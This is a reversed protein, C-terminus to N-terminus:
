LTCLACLGACLENLQTPLHSRPYNGRCSRFHPRFLLFFFPRLPYNSLLYLADEIAPVSSWSLGLSYSNIVAALTATPAGQEALRRVTDLQGDSLRADYLSPGPSRPTAFTIVPPEARPVETLESMCTPPGAPPYAMVRSDSHLPHNWIDLTLPIYWQLRVYIKSLLRRQLSRTRAMVHLPLNSFKYEQREVEVRQSRTKSRHRCAGCDHHRRSLSSFQSNWATLYVFFCLVAIPDNEM